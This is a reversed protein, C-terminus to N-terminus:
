ARLQEAGDIIGPIEVRDTREEVWAFASFDAVWLYLVGYDSVAM